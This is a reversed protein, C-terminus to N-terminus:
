ISLFDVFESVPLDGFYIHLDFDKLAEELYSKEYRVGELRQEISNVDSMGLFDGYFKINKISGKEVDIRADIQGIPFRRTKQINFYPSHGYNWEWLQYRNASIQNIQEWDRETLEYISNESDALIGNKIKERFDIVDMPESLFESINAVRSRVSKIGKSEIKEARVNLAEVVRALDTELLLTGHSVMRPGTSYQANGSIKRGDVLIDNRGGLEAPVGMDNLVRIVPDTFKKYNHLNERGANSIFSFNLNKLDHYVAGGGSLRRVVIIGHQDVYKQNIEEITNQNRGIIISPQNIYFLLIDEKTVLKRVLFEEIALNIRPDNNENDVYIM